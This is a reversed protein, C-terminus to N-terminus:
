IFDFCRQIKNGSLIYIHLWGYYNKKNLTNKMFFQFKSFNDSCNNLVLTFKSCASWYNYESRQMEEVINSITICMRLRIYSIKLCSQFRKDCYNAKRLPWQVEDARIRDMGKISNNCRGIFTIYSSSLWEKVSKLASQLKTKVYRLIVYRLIVYRLAVYCLM